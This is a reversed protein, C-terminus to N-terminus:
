NLFSIFACLIKGQFLSRKALYNVRENFTVGILLPDFHSQHTSLILAGVPVLTHERGFCRLHFGFVAVWAAVTRVSRYFVYQLLGFFSHKNSEAVREKTM